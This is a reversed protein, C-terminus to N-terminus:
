AMIIFVVALYMMREKGGREWENGKGDWCRKFLGDM